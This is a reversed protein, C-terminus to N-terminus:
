YQTMDYVEPPQGAFFVDKYIYHSILEGILYTIFYSTLSSVPFPFLRSMRLLALLHLLDAILGHTAMTIPSYLLCLVLRAILCPRALFVM